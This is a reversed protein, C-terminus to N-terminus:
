AGAHASPDPRFMRKRVSSARALRMLVRVRAPMPRETRQPVAGEEIAQAIRDFLAEVAWDHMPAIVLPWVARATGRLEAELTHTLRAGGEHAELDFGHWGTMNSGRVSVRWRAGDWETLRFKFPGHGVETQGPVSALPDVGPPNRRWSRIVDRPFVDMPTGTWAHDLLPRIRDPPVSFLRRHVNRM